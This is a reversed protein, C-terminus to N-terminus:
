YRQNCYPGSMQLLYDSGATEISVESNGGLRFFDEAFQHSSLPGFADSVSIEISGSFNQWDIRLDSSLRPGDVTISGGRSSDWLDLCENALIDRRGYQDSLTLAVYHDVPTNPSHYIEVGCAFLLPILALPSFRTFSELNM